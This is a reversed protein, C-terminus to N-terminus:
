FGPWVGIVPAHLHWVIAWCALAVLGRVLGPPGKPRFRGTVLAAFPLLSTHATVRAWEAAGMAARKRTEVIRMGVISFLLFMGFLIVHAVDGNALLHAGSWLALAWLLPQRTIGTIGPRGPDFGTSRGEFAFPNPAAVGYATLAIAVPMVGNLLWRHWLQQDWLPVFPARNAASVLWVLLATSFLSFAIIYSRHGLIAELRAKLAKSAPIRHSALFALMALIFELWAM